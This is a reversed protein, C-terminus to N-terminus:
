GRAIEVSFSRLHPELMALAAPDTGRLRDLLERVFRLALRKYEIDRDVRRIREAARLLKDLAKGLEAIHEPDGRDAKDLDAALAGIQRRVAGLLGQWSVTHDRRLRDWEGYDRWRRLTTPSIGVAACIERETCQLEVWMEYAQSGQWSTRKIPRQSM